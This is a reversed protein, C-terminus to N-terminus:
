RRKLELKGTIFSFSIDREKLYDRMGKLADNLIGKIRTVRVERRKERIAESIKGDIFLNFMKQVCEFTLEPSNLLRKNDIKVYATSYESPPSALKDIATIIITPFTRIKFMNVIKKYNPDDLRAINVLLNRGTITGLDRLKSALDKNLRTGPYYFVYVQYESPLDNFFINEGVDRTIEDSFETLVLQYSM